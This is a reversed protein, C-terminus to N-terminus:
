GATTMMAASAGVRHLRLTTRPARRLVPVPVGHTGCLPDILLHAFNELLLQGFDLVAEDLDRSEDLDRDLLRGLREVVGVDREGLLDDRAVRADVLQRDAEVLQRDVDEGTLSRDRAVEAGDDGGEADAGGELPHAVDGFVDRLERAVAEGVLDHGLAEARGEDLHSAEVDDDRVLEGLSRRECSARM